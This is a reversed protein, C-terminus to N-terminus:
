VNAVEKTISPRSQMNNLRIRDNKYLSTNKLENLTVKIIKRKFDSLDPNISYLVWQGSRRQTILNNLKIISLHRSIKSQPLDLAHILECVCIEKKELILLLCRLRTEDSLVKFFENMNLNAYTSRWM